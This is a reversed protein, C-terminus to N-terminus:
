AVTDVANGSADKLTLTDGTNSLAGTYVKDATVGPVTTDDTRELLYYGGAAISGTLTIKPATGGAELKWGALSVDETGDNHLEIWEDTDSVSTGMWAVESIIVGAHAASPVAVLLLVLLSLSRSSM